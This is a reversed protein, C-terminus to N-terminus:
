FFKSPLISMLDSGFALALPTMAIARISIDVVKWLCYLRNESTLVRITANFYPCFPLPSKDFIQIKGANSTM